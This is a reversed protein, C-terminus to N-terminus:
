EQSKKAYGKGRKPQKKYGYSQSAGRGYSQRGRQSYRNYQSNFFGGARSGRFGQSGRGRFSQTSRKNKAWSFDLKAVKAAKEVQSAFDTGGFLSVHNPDYGYLAEALADKFTFRVNERRAKSIKLSVSFLGHISMSIMRRAVSVQKGLPRLELLAALLPKAIVFIETQSAFLARETKIACKSSMRSIYKYIRLPLKPAAFFKQLDEGPVFEDNIEKLIEETLPRDICGDIFKQLSSGLEWNPYKDLILALDEDVSGEDGSMDKDQDGTDEYVVEKDVPEETGEETDFIGNQFLHGFRKDFDFEDVGKDKPILSKVKKPIKTKKPPDKPGSDGILSSVQASLTATTAILSEAWLPIADEERGAM